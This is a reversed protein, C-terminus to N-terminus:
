TEQYPTQRSFTCSSTPPASGSTSRSNGNPPRKSKERVCALRSSVLGPSTV